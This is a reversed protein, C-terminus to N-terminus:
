AVLIRCPQAVSAQQGRWGSGPAAAAAASETSPRSLERAALGSPSLGVRNSSSTGGVIGRRPESTPPVVSWGQGYGNGGQQQQQQQQLLQLQQMRIDAANGIVGAQQGGGVVGGYHQGAVAMGMGAGAGLLMLWSMIRPVYAVDGIATLM